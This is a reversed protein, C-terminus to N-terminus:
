ESQGVGERGRETTLEFGEWVWNTRALEPLATENMLHPDHAEKKPPFSLVVMM